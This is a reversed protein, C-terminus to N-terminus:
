KRRRFILLSALGLGALAIMSPEPIPVLTIPSNWGDLGPAPTPPQAAPNGLAASQFGPTQGINGLGMVYLASDARVSFFPTAGGASPTVVLVAPAIYGAGAGTATTTSNILTYAAVGDPSWWLQATAGGAKALNEFQFYQNALTSGFSVTGQASVLTPLLVAAFAAIVLKKM